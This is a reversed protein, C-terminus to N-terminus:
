PGDLMAARHVRGAAGSTAARGGGGHEGGTCEDSPALGSAAPLRRVDRRAALVRGGLRRREIGRRAAVSASASWGPACGCHIQRSPRRDAQEPQRDQDGDPVQSSRQQAARQAAGRRTAVGGCGPGACRRPCRGPPPRRARRRGPPARRRRCRGAGRRSRRSPAAPAPRRRRGTCAAAARRCGSRGPRGAARALLRPAVRASTSSPARRVDVALGPVGGVGDVVPHAVLGPGGQAPQAGFEVPPPQARLHGLAVPPEVGSGAPGATLSGVPMSSRSAELLLRRRRGAAAPTRRRTRQSNAASAPRRRPSRRPRDAQARDAQLQRAARADGRHRRHQGHAPDGGRQGAPGAACRRGAAAGTLLRRSCSPRGPVRQAGRDAAPLLRQLPGCGVGLPEGLPAQGTEALQGVLPQALPVADGPGASGRGPGPM